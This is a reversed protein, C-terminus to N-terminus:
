IRHILMYSTIHSLDHNKQFINQSTVSHKLLVVIKWGYTYGSVYLLELLNMTYKMVKRSIVKIPDMHTGGEFSYITIVNLACLQSHIKKNHYIVTWIIPLWWLYCIFCNKLKDKVLYYQYQFSCSCENTLRVHM